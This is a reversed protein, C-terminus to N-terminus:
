IIVLIDDINPIGPGAASCIFQFIDINNSLIAIFFGYLHYHNQLINHVM